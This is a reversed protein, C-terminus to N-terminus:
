VLDLLQPLWMSIAPWYTTVLLAILMALFFPLMNKTVAAISTKGVSCGVFLCTGVPPTCLGICLNAVMMVGFHVPHMGLEEVVPLFIPTFILVAPTMDMFTGVFLLAINILLLIVIPNDSIGLMLNALTQPIQQSALAWSMAQSTSILLFVISTMVGTRLCISPLDTLKVERYLIVSMVFAYLVAIASAETASFFGGLIGALVIVILLLSPLAALVIRLPTQSNEAATTGDQSETSVASTSENTGALEAYDAEKGTNGSRLASGITLWCAILILFGVLVGPLLGAMFMAAVSVNGSVVAYVIMVNSPPILLGTTAATTTVAVSYDRHFGRREMAPIMIGGISSVAATASGSIAGFMMCTLTSVYALGGQFRGALLTALNILRRSMGGEGMLIGAAIFFPIALLKFSSNASSMRQAMVLTTDVGTMSMMLILTCLGIAIAVPVNLLLLALFSVVLILIQVEM